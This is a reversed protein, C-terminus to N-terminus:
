WIWELKYIEKLKPSEIDWVIGQDGSFEVIKADTKIQRTSVGEVVNCKLRKPPRGRPFHIRFTLHKTPRAIEQTCHEHSSTFCDHLYATFVNQFQSGKSLLDALDIRSIYFGHEIKTEVITGILTSFGNAIGSATLGERYSHLTDSNVTYTATKQYKASKGDTTELFLDIITLQSTLCSERGPVSGEISGNQNWPFYRAVPALAWKIGANIQARFYALLAAAMLSIATASLTALHTALFGLGDNIVDDM